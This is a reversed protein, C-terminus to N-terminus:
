EAVARILGKKVAWSSLLPGSITAQGDAFKVSTEQDRFRFLVRKPGLTIEESSEALVVLNMKTAARLLSERVTCQDPAPVTVSRRLVLGAAMLNGVVLWMLLGWVLGTVLAGFLPFLAFKMMLGGWVLGAVIWIPAQAALVLRYSSRTPLRLKNASMQQEEASPLLIGASNPVMM